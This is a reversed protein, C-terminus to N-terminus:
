HRNVLKFLNKQLEIHNSKTKVVRFPKNYNAFQDEEHSGGWDLDNIFLNLLVVGLVAVQPMRNKIEGQSFIPWRSSNKKNEAKLWNATWLLASGKITHNSLKSLFM